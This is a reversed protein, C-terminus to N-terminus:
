SKVGSKGLMYEVASKIEDRTLAPNGGKPPMNGKGKIAISVLGDVGGAAKFRASWDAHDGIKPAGLVGAGHCASCVQSVLQEGSLAPKGGASEGTSAQQLQAASTAVQAVPALRQELRAQELEPHTEVGRSALAAILIIVATIMGLVGLVFMFTVIFSRDSKASM